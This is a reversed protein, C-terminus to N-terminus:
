GGLTVRLQLGLRDISGTWAGNAHPYNWRDEPAPGEVTQSFGSTSVERPALFHHAYSIGLQAEPGPLPLTWALQGSVVTDDADYNNASVAEDAIASPDRLVRAGVLLGPAPRLKADFAFWPSTTGGRAWLRRQEVLDVAERSLTPNREAVGSVAIDFDTFRSWGVLGFMVETRLVAAPEIALGAHVRWPLAYAVAADARLTADCLGLRESGFRGLTDSQPPCGFRLTLDGTNRVRAGSTWALGLAARDGLRARLGLRAVVARDTLEGFELRAAYDPNELDADTYPSAEGEGEILADLDPLTDQDVTATWSSFLVGVAAGLSLAHPTDRALTYALGSSLEVARVEGSRMAYRAAGDEVTSAGGRIFPVALALGAGLGPLADGLDSAVGAYPVVGSLVLRDSGAHPEARDYAIAAFTPAGEVLVRTGRGGALGAPNWWAAAGDTATPSGWPGAVEPNDLAAARGPAALALLLALMAERDRM